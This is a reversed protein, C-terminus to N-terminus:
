NWKRIQFCNWSLLMFKLIAIIIFIVCECTYLHGILNLILKYILVNHDIFVITYTILILALIIKDNTIPHSTQFISSLSLSLSLSFSCRIIMM